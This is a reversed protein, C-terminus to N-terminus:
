FAAHGLNTYYNVPIDANEQSLIEQLIGAAIGPDTVKYQEHIRSLAEVTTLSHWPRSTPVSRLPADLYGAGYVSPDGTESVYVNPIRYLDDDNM